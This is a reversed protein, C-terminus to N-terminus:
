EGPASNPNGALDRRQFVLMGTGHYDTPITVIQVYLAEFEPMKALGERIYSEMLVVYEPAYDFIIDPPVAYNSKEALLAEDVPYYDSLEPTVLGVTDLIRAHSFYGVAGIDGIAILTDETVHYEDRLLEGVSQYNLEIDHWAAKPAPYDPGHDPALEWGSLTFVVALTGIVGLVTPLLAGSREAREAASSVLAWIGLLVALLYAPLIPVVYWRFMLPNMIGFVAIYFWPYVLYPLLRPERRTSYRAGIMALAPYVVLGFVFGIFGLAHHEMFPTAIVQVLRELAQPSKIVYAATKASLSNSLLTGFYAASFAYWPLLVLGFVLWSQWPVRRRLTRMDRPFGADRTAVWRMVLQHLLLLGVWILTDIRTLLALAACAAMWRERQAVYCSMAAVAWFVSLSTEMGGIAFTVSLPNVAWVVGSIAALVLRGSLRYALWALLMATGADALANTYLAFWPYQESGTVFSIAAMFLTYLPTTTGLTRTDPNYVFGERDVLNRSYRFTIYADDITRPHPIVRAVIALLAVVLLLALLRRMVPAAHHEGPLAASEAASRLESM